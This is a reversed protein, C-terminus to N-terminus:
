GFQPLSMFGIGGVGDWLEVQSVGYGNCKIKATVLQKYLIVRVPCQEYRMTVLNIQLTDYDPFVTASDYHMLPRPNMHDSIVFIQHGFAKGLM